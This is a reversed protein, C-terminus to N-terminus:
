MGCASHAYRARRWGWCAGSWSGGRPRTRTRTTAGRSHETASRAQSQRGPFGCSRAPCQRSPARVTPKSGARITVDAEDGKNQKEKGLPREDSSGVTKSIGRKTAVSEKHKQGEEASSEQLPMRTAKLTEKARRRKNRTKKKEKQCSVKKSSKKM